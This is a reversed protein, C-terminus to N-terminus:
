NVRSLIFCVLLCLGYSVNLDLANLTSLAAAASKVCRLVQNFGESRSAFRYSDNAQKRLGADVHTFCLFQM